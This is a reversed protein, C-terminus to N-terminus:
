TNPINCDKDILCGTDAHSAMDDVLPPVDDFTMRNLITTFHRKM